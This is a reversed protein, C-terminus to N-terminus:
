KAKEPKRAPAAATTSPAATASAPAAGAPGDITVSLGQARLIAILQPDNGKVALEALAKVIDRYLSELAITQQVYQQRQGLATQADRNLTFLGANALMLALAVAGLLTLVVFQWRLLMDVDAEHGQGIAASGGRPAGGACAAHVMCRLGQQSRGRRAVATVSLLGLAMMLWTSLEPVPAAVVNFSGDAQLALQTVNFDSSQVMIRSADIVNGWSQEPGFVTSLGTVAGTLPNLSQIFNDLDFGGSAAFATPDTNGLFNFVIQLSSLSFTSDNGIILHDIDYGDGFSQIDLILRSGPLTILNCNINIRGPSNGPSIIGGVIVDGTANIVAGNGSLMGLAGIEFTTTNITSNNMILSGTGGPGAQTAGVGVYGTNMVTGANLTLTGSSGPQGAIILSGDGVNLTSANFTATGTGDHGIRVTAQGPAANLTVQSNSVTLTGTGFPNTPTGGVNLSAGGSGLNSITVQSNNTITALGTGGRNGIVFAAGNGSAQQGSLTINGNDITLSGVGGASRGVTLNTASLTGQNSVALSGTGSRGVSMFGSDGITRLESGVGSVSATGLGGAAGDNNGGIGITNATMKSGGGVSLIGTSESNNGVIITGTAGVNVTSNGTMTM